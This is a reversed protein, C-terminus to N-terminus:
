EGTLNDYVLSYFYSKADKLENVTLERDFDSKVHKIFSIYSSYIKNTDKNDVLNLSKTVYDSDITKNPQASLFLKTRINEAENYEESSLSRM